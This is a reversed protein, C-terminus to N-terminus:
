QNDLSLKFQNLIKDFDESLSYSVDIDSKNINHLKKYACVKTQLENFRKGSDIQKQYTAIDFSDLALGIYVYRSWLDMFKSVPFVRNRLIDCDKLHPQYPLGLQYYYRSLRQPIAYPTSGFLRHYRVYDKPNFLVIKALEPIKETIDYDTINYRRRYFTLLRHLRVFTRFLKLIPQGVIRCYNLKLKKQLNSPVKVKIMKGNILFHFSDKCEMQQRFDANSLAPCGLGGASRSALYFTPNRYSQPIQMSKCLYKSIYKFSNVHTTKVHIFGLQWANRIETEIEDIRDGSMNESRAFYIIAHYHPRGYQDGYESFLAYRFKWGTNKRLRKFFLQCHRKSVGNFPLNDNSYTLTVFVSYIGNGDIEDINELLLRYQMDIHKSMLCSKCKGCPVKIYMPLMDGTVPNVCYYNDINDVNVGNKRPGFIEYEPSVSLYFDRGNMHVIPFLHYDRKWTPNIIIYPNTCM